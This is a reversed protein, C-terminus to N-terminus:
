SQLPVPVGTALHLLAAGASVAAGAWHGGCAPTAPRAFASQAAPPAAPRARPAPATPTTQSRGPRATPLQAPLPAPLPMSLHSPHTHTNSHLCSGVPNNIPHPLPTLIVHNVHQPQRLLILASGQVASFGASVHGRPHVGGSGGGLLVGWLSVAPRGWCSTPPRAAPATLGAAVRVPPVATCPM